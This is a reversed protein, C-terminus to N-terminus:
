PNEPATVAWSGYGFGEEGPIEIPFEMSVGSLPDGTLIQSSGPEFLNLLIESKQYMCFQGPEATPSAADGPCEPTPTNYKVYHFTPAETLSLPFSITEYELPSGSPVYVSWNGTETKGPPLITETPGAPGTPGREGNTGNTGADGKAGAPGAPGQPGAPGALGALGAPGAPGAKGPKGPKGQKAKASATAKSHSGGSAAYAGGGLAAILAVIAVILGATGIQTRLRELM